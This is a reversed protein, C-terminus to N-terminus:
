FARGKSNNRDATQPRMPRTQLDGWLLVISFILFVSVVAASVLISDLPM